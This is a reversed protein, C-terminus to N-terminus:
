KVHKEMENRALEIYRRVKQPTINNCYIDRCAIELTCGKAAQVTEAFHAKIADEDLETGVGMFNPSPKRLFVIRRGALREGMMQQNCWPSISVKRLNKLQDLGNDWLDHVAECCGYSLLGFMDSIKKYYPLVFERYMKPSIGSSEQSDMYLWIQKMSLETGEYPLEDTFCYSGQALHEDRAAARYVGKKELMKFYQVYDDTLMEMMKHFLEPYDYMACYMDDMHMLHVINQTPVCYQSAGGHVVPLIDGLLDQMEAFYKAHAEQDVGYVSPGLVHFDDELDVLWPEFHYAVGGHPDGQRKPTLGFPQFYGNLPVNFCSPVLTDDGFLEFNAMDYRLRHEIRRADEGECCMMPPLIDDEFTGLEIRILPRSDAAFAGHKMWDQYLKRNRESSALEVQKKALDRLILRDSASIYM